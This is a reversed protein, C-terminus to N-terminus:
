EDDLGVGVAGDTALEVFETTTLTEIQSGYDPAFVGTALGLMLAFALGTIPKWLTRFPWPRAARGGTAAPSAALIDGILAAGPQPVPLASLAEEAFRAEDVLRRAAPERAMLDAAWVREAEPWRKEAAGHRDLLADLRELEQGATERTM